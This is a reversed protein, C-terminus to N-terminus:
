RGTTVPWTESMEDAALSKLLSTDISSFRAEDKELVLRSPSGNSPERAEVDRKSTVSPSVFRSLLM